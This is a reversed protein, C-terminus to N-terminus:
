NKTKRDWAIKTTMTVAVGVAFPLVPPAATALVFPTLMGDVLIGLWVALGIGVSESVTATIAQKKTIKGKKYKKFNVFGNIGGGVAMVAGTAKFPSISQSVVKVNKAGRGVNSTINNSISEAYYDTFEM